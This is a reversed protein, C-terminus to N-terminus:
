QQIIKRPFNAIIDDFVMFTKQTKNPNYKESTNYINVM